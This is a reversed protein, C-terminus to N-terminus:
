ISVAACAFVLTAELAASTKRQTERDTGRISTGARGQLM